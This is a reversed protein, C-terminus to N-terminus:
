VIINSNNNDKEKEKEKDKKKENMEDMRKFLYAVDSLYKGYSFEFSGLVSIIDNRLETDSLSQNPIKSFWYKVLFLNYDKEQIFDLKL